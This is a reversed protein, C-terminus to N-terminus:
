SARPVLGTEDIIAEEQYTDDTNVAWLDHDRGLAIREAALIGMLLSHDQNNYKFAGARGIVQLKPITQLYNRLVDMHDRYGLDYIPYCNPVRIVQSATIRAGRILGTEQLDHTAREVHQEDPQLWKSDGPNCWLELSLITQPKDRHLETVWNRYNTIRGVELEPAHVYLWQDPFLNESEVRLYVLITNRFRLAAAANGVQEPTQPLARVLHTLPMSSVVHDFVHRQGSALELEVGGAAGPDLRKVPSVLHVSGGLRRVRDTMTQYVSGTGRLPYAFRDILTAHRTSGKRSLSNLAAEFLSLKRIRQAAFDADLRNCPIGWVKESYSQFFMSYLRQGFRSRTWDEFSVAPRRPRLQERLYSAVCRAAETLGLKAVVDDARLPYDFLKGGYYIRTQREVMRYQTEVVELWLRNVRADASFFRHPGLDVTQDWLEFSRAMGGVHPSAEFLEVPVGLKALTYATALGAPGAGIVAVTKSVVRSCRSSSAPPRAMPM